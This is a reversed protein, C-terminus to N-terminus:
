RRKRYHSLNILIGSMMISVVFSTGGYSIFPLTIGKTPFLGVSVLMNVLAQFVLTLTLGLCLYKSFFDPMNESIKMGKFFIFLFLAVVTVAGVFGFEEGIISFIFDNESQTLYGLKLEGSGIGKGWFGGSGLANISQKIQYYKGDSDKLIEDIDIISKLYRVLRLRRYSTFMIACLAASLCVAAGISIAKIKAGACFLMTLCVAAILVATGLDKELLIPICIIGLIICPAIIASSLKEIDTKKRAIFEAMYIVMAMKAFESPQITLFGIKLWRTAGYNSHGFILVAILAIFAVFCIQLAYKQYFKYNILFATIALLISGVFIWLSQKGFFKYPIAWRIDSVVVTSSFVMLLGILILCSLYIILTIDYKRIM